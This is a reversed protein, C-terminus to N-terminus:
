LLRFKPGSIYVIKLPSGEQNYWQVERTWDGKELLRM